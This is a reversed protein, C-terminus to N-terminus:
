MYNFLRGVVVVLVWHLLCSPKIYYCQGNLDDFNTLKVSPQWFLGLNRHIAKVFHGMDKTMNFVYLITDSAGYM